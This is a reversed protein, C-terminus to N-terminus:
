SKAMPGQDATTTASPPPQVGELIAEAVRQLQTEISADIQGDPTSLICGGREVAADATVQVHELEAGCRLVEGAVERLTDHDAPNVRLELDGDHEVAKLVHRANARAAEPSGEVLLKCVRRAIALALEILGAEAVGILRRKNREFEALGTTLAQVLRGVREREEEVIAARAEIRIQRQGERRGEELGTAHAQQAAQEAQQRGDAQAQRLIQQAQEDARALVARAQGELDAFSFPQGSCFNQRGIVGAM